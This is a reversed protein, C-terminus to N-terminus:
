HLHRKRDVEIEEDPGYNNKLYNIITKNDVANKYDNIPTLNKFCLNDFASIYDSAMVKVTTDKDAVWGHDYIKEGALYLEEIPNEMDGDEFYIDVGSIALYSHDNLIMKSCVDLLQGYTLDYVMLFNGFPFMTYIDAGTIYHVKEGDQLCIESRVGSNNIIGVDAGVAAASVKAAWTSAVDEKLKKDLKKNSINKTIYGLPSTFDSEIENVADIASHSITMVDEDLNSGNDSNDYLLEKNDDISIVEQNEITVDNDDTIAIDLSAYSHGYSGGDVYPVGNTFEGVASKHDHGCFILDVASDDEVFEEMDEPSVHCIIVSMDAEGSEEVERAKEEILSFDNEKIKYAKIKDKAISSSYDNIFGFIAVNINRTQGDSAKAEKEVIVYDQTFDVKEGSKADYLNWCLVPVKSDGKIIKSLDYSGVTGDHDIVKELGWDFEHNGLGVGDYGMADIYARIPQGELKNSLINGQYFDGTDVLLLDGEQRKSDIVNGLYGLLYQYTAEDNSSLDIIYGHIDTTEMASLYYVNNKEEIQEDLSADSEDIIEDDSDDVVEDSINTEVSSVTDENIKDSGVNRVAQIIVTTIIIFVIVAVVLKEYDENSRKKNDM